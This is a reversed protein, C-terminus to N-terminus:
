VHSKGLAHGITSATMLRERQCHGNDVLLANLNLDLMTLFADYLCLSVVLQVVLWSSQTQSCPFWFLLSSFSFFSASMSVYDLRHDVSAIYRDSLWGFLPDNCTNWVLFVSQAFYFSGLNIQYISVFM